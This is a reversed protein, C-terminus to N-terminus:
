IEARYKGIIGVLEGLHMFEILFRSLPICDQKEDSNHLRNLLGMVIRTTFTKFINHVTGKLFCYSIKLLPAGRNIAKDTHIYTQSLTKFIKYEVIYNYLTCRVTYM